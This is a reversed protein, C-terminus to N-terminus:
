RTMECKNPYLTAQSFAVLEVMVNSLPYIHYTRVALAREKHHCSGNAPTQATNAYFEDRPAAHAYDTHAGRQSGDHEDNEPLTELDLKRGAVAQPGQTETGRSDQEHECVLQSSSGRRNEQLEGRGNEHHQHLKNEMFFLRLEAPENGDQERKQAHEQQQRVVEALPLHEPVDQRDARADSEGANYNAVFALIGIRLM